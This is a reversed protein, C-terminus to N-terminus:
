CTVHLVAYVDGSKMDALLRCADATPLAAVGLGRREAEAHVDAVIPLKGNAGRGVILRHGADLGVRCGCVRCCHGEEHIGGTTYVPFQLPNAPRPLPPPSAAVLAGNQARAVLLTLQPRVRAHM